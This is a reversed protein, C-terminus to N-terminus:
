RGTSGFGNDGRETEDLKDVQQLNCVGLPVILLQAIKDGSKLFLIEDDDSLGYLKVKISGTFGSDIVGTPCIVGHNVNLGSRGMVLGVYGRPIEIHVGTDIVMSIRHDGSNEDKRLFEMNYDKPDDIDPIRLDFGADDPHAKEPPYAGKDLTYRVDINSDDDYFM